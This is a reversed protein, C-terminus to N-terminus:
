VLTEAAPVAMAILIVAPIATWIVEVMTSHTFKAPQAGANKRFKVIAFIMAGFVGIGIVVCVWLILMHLGYGERSITTVGQPMNLEWDSWAPSSMFATLVSLVAAFAGVKRNMQM